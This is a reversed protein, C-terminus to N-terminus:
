QRWEEPTRAGKKTNCSKCCTVLNEDDHPGGRSQPVVHDLTLKEPSGCYVCSGGDRAYIAERRKRGISWQAQRVKPETPPHALRFVEVWVGGGDAAAVLGRCILGSLCAEAEVMDCNAWSVIQAVSLASM